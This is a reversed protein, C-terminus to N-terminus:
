VDAGEAKSPRPIHIHSPEDPFASASGGAPFTQAAGSGARLSPTPEHSRGRAAAALGAMALISLPGVIAAVLSVILHESSVLGGAGVMWGFLGALVALPLYQGLALIKGNSSKARM